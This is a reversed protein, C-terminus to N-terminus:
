GVMPGAFPAVGWLELVRRPVSYGTRPDVFEDPRPSGSRPLGSGGRQTAWLHQVLVRLGQRIAPKVIGDVPAAVYTISTNQIGYPWPASGATTGYHLIGRRGDLVYSTTASGGIAVATVSAVPRRWLEIMSSRGDTDHVEGSITRRRWTQGTKDECVDSAVLLLTLIEQDDDTASTRLWSKGEALDVIPPADAPEVHWIGTAVDSAAGTGTWTYTWAGATTCPIDKTYAGTSTKTIQAAAYTYTTATGAPDTITLSVTTPDTPVGGVTFTNTLTALEAAAAAYFVQAM